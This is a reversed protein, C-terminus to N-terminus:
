HTMRTSERVTRLWKTTRWLPDIQGDKTPSSHVMQHLLGEAEKGPSALQARCAHFQHFPGDEEEDDHHDWSAAMAGEVLHSSAARPPMNVTFQLTPDQTNETTTHSKVTSHAQM